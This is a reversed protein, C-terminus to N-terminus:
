RQCPCSLHTILLAPFNDFRITIEWRTATSHRTQRMESQAIQQDGHVVDDRRRQRKKGCEIQAEVAALQEVIAHRKNSRM